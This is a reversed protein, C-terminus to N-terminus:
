CHSLRGNPIASQQENPIRILKQERLGGSKSLSALRMSRCRYHLGLKHSLVAFMPRIALALMVARPQIEADKGTGGTGRRFFCRKIAM